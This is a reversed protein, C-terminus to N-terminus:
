VQKMIFRGIIPVYLLFPFIHFSTLTLHNASLFVSTYYRVCVYM